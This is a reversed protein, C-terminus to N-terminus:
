LCQAVPSNFANIPSTNYATNVLKRNGSSDVCFTNPGTKLGYFAFAYSQGDPSMRCWFGLGSGGGGSGGSLNIDTKEMAKGVMKTINTDVRGFPAYCHGAGAHVSTFGALTYSSSTNMNWAWAGYRNGNNYYYLDLEKKIQDATAKVFAVDAKNKTNQLSVMVVSSLIGIIAIVVLLELLTFGKKNKLKFNNLM